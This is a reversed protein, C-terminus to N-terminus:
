PTVHDILLRRTGDRGVRYDTEGSLDGPRDAPEGSPAIRAFVEVQEGVTFAQGPIMADATTLVVTQPFRSELRKVALPPGSARTDRVFVYLPAARPARRALAPALQLRVQISAPAPHATTAAPGRRDDMAALQAQALRKVSDSPDLALLRQLRARALARNGRHLAVIGGLFLARPDAPAVAIAREILDGARGAIESDDVLSLAEAEGILARASRHGAIQDARAYAHAALPYERLVIYSRGLMLWGDLDNPHDHLEHVLREVMSTPSDIGPSKSWSWNSLSAYLTASGVILVGGCGLATWTAPALGARPKLLPVAVAGIAALALAAALALFVTM